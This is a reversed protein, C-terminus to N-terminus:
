KKAKASDSLQQRYGAVGALLLLGICALIKMLNSGNIEQGELVESDERQLEHAMLSRLVLGMAIVKQM